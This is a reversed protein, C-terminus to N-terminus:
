IWEPFIISVIAAFLIIYLQLVRAMESEPGALFQRKFYNQKIVIGRFNEGRASYRQACPSHSVQHLTIVLTHEYGPHGRTTRRVQGPQPDVVLDEWDVADGADIDVM